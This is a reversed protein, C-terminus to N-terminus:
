PSAFGPQHRRFADHGKELNLGAAGSWSLCAPLASFFCSCRPRKTQRTPTEKYQAAGPYRAASRASRCATPRSPKRPGTRPVDVTRTRQARPEALRQDTSAGPTQRPQQGTAPSCSTGRIGLQAKNCALRSKLWPKSQLVSVISDFQCTKVPPIKFGRGLYESRRRRRQARRRMVQTKHQESQNKNKKKKRLEHQCTRATKCQKAKGLEKM